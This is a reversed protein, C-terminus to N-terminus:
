KSENRSKWVGLTYSVLEEIREGITCGKVRNVYFAILSANNQIVLACELASVMRPIRTSKAFVANRIIQFEFVRGRIATELRVTEIEAVLLCLWLAFFISKM